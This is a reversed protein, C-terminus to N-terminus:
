AGLADRVREPAFPLEHLRVGTLAAIANGVAGALVPLGDEGGGTPPNNTSVVKVEINPVDSMRAVEYDTYNTQRVHGDKIVIKERLVHGLGYIISGETQAALNRPQVAIGADIACWVNHVKLKGTTRDVSVEAVGAALTDDKVMTAVGLATGERKRSWDSMAAVTHLLTQMRPVGESMELRFAIPDKGQDKAIEDIFSEAAFANHGNGVGRWPSLRAGRSEIVHEALKNPIPYQPIPSGKMVIRDQRPRPDGSSYAVVSEAVVRHHWAIVKGHTDLGAEIYHATMPRFKGFAVDDERSWILKVPKGAAKALRVADLVTEHNGRRGYGGGLFQQHLTLKSRETGLLKAVENLLSTAAQTGTWIEASKGDASVSVTANMPEMQAHYVYRTRYEGRYVKAAGAMAASVDGEKTYPVGARSKDRGIAAFDELARESDLHAGPADSWTVKLLNKAAQTGEVTDGIVGVGEPLRVVDTIGPVKRAEADDVTQPSGGPYPSQLVAAYVMGPVQVDMGYQAAGRVKLPVEVRAIDQGILRFAAPDKLDSEAVVPLTAPAQAFAAIEGYSIRRGSAKHVVVSPETSLESAPVNWKAAVADILVRRAQAGALRAPKFYGRVSASASTQFSMNYEPNGYKKEDWVQPFIPKVKSWDADLEEAIFVPVTTFSGQGMEAAPSVITITGDPTITLWANPALPADAVAEEMGAFQEPRITLALTFGAATGLIQRRSFNAQSNM